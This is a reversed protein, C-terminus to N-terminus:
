DKRRKKGGKKGRRKRTKAAPEELAEIRERLEDMYRRITRVWVPLMEFTTQHTMLSVIAELADDEDVEMAAAGSSERAGAGSM